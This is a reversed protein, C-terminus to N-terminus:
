ALMTYTLINFVLIKCNNRYAKLMFVYIFDVLYLTDVFFSEYCFNETM